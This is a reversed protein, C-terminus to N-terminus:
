KTTPVKDVVGVILRAAKELSAPQVQEPVDELTHLKGGAIAVDTAVIGAQAFVSHDSGMDQSPVFEIGLEDATSKLALQLWEPVNSVAATTPPIYRWKADVDGEAKNMLDKPLQNVAKGSIGYVGNRMELYMKEKGGVSDMNFVLACSKLEDLHKGLYAKAGLLGVEEAGLAIFKLQIPPRHKLSRYYRALEILVAVGSANDDAGPDRVSDLHASLIVESTPTGKPSLLAVVNASRVSVERGTVEITAKTPKSQQLRTFDAATVYAV